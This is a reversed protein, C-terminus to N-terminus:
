DGEFICMLAAYSTSITMRNKTKQPAEMSIEVTAACTQKGVQTRRGPGDEEVNTKKIMTMRAPSFHFKSLKTDRQHNQVSEM